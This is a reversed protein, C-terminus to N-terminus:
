GAKRRGHHRRLALGVFYARRAAEARQARDKETLRRDPDVEREFRSMFSSRAAETAATRDSCKAWKQYAGLKGGIRQGSNNSERLV